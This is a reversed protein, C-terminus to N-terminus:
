SFYALKRFWIWGEKKADQLLDPEPTAAQGTLFDRAALLCVVADLCDADEELLNTNEPLILKNHLRNIIERREPQDSKAKYGSALIGYQTLTAAPYVEIASTEQLEQSWALPVHYGTQTRIEGLLKLAAHATRAIRDAGVDLSQKGVKEKVFRDTNRRFLQNPEIEIPQGSQHNVLAAGLPQPWGLPADFALLALPKQSFWDGVQQAVCVVQDGPLVELVCLRNGMWEGLALGINKPDVACDIGIVTIGKSRKDM